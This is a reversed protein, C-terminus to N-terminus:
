VGNARLNENKKSDLVRTKVHLLDEFTRFSGKGKGEMLVAPM